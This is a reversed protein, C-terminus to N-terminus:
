YLIQVVLLDGLGVAGRSIVLILCWGSRTHRSLVAWLGRMVRPCPRTIKLETQDVPLPTMIHYESSTDSTDEAASPSIYAAGEVFKVLFDETYGLLNMQPKKARKGRKARM